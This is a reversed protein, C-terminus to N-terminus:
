FMNMFFNKLLIFSLDTIRLWHKYGVVPQFTSETKLNCKNIILKIEQTNLTEAPPQIELCM